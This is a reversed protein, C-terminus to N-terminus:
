ARCRGRAGRRCTRRWGRRGRGSGPRRSRTSPWARRESGGSRLALPATVRTARRTQTYAGALVAVFSGVLRSPSRAPARTSSSAATAARPRSSPPRRRRTAVRQRHAVRGPVGAVLVPRGHAHVAVPRRRLATCCARGTFGYTCLGHLIPRDFGGMAAFKPDSHLPNRDGSLRYILAQDPRTTYTVSTTPTATPRSAVRARRAATAAGAARAASSRRCPRPSCRSAPRDVDAHLDVRHEVVAGKGKDYIGTIEGVTEVEGEVPIEGTCSSPRSATSSCPRTSRASRASPAAGGVGLVVAMTPLVQQDIDNTNETTFQWSTSRTAAGAGVGLAYLLADKSTWSQRTPSARPASPMPTSPCTRAESRATTAPEPRTTASCTPTPAPRPSSTARRERRRAAPDDTPCRSAHPRPALGRVGLAGPRVVDFVRGTVDASERAPWGSSSRPSGARAVDAGQDGRDAQGMGLNETMRTLAAPAIANVTVGYRALEKAAIITFAAIGAKAAGYNTQGVNGYIGSPSSTNIIRGDVEDGAKSRERWYAAAHRAPAFTGKLHVQIVADWEAETM